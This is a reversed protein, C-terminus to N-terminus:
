RLNVSRRPDGCCHKFKKGSGCPCPNNRPVHQATTSFLDTPGALDSLGAEFEWFQSILPVLDSIIGYATWAPDAGDPLTIKQAFTSDTWGVILGIAKERRLDNFWSKWASRHQNLGFVFGQCWAALDSEMNTVMVGEQELRPSYAQVRIAEGIEDYFGKILKSVRSAQEPRLSKTRGVANLALALLDGGQAQDPGAAIATFLGHLKALSMEEGVEAYLFDLLETEEAETFDLIEDAASDELFDEAEASTASEFENQEGSEMAPPPQGLTKLPAPEPADESEGIQVDFTALWDIALNRMRANHFAHWEDSLKGDARVNQKFSRFPKPGELSWELRERLRSPPLTQVFDEMIRFGQRSEMPDIRVFQGLQADAIEEFRPDEGRLQESLILVEGTLTNLYYCGSSGHDELAMALDVLNVPLTKM